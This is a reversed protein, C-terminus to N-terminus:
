EPQALIPLCSPCHFPFAVGLLLNQVDEPLDVSPLKQFPGLDWRHFAYYAAGIHLVFRTRDFLAHSVSFPSTSLAFLTTASLM